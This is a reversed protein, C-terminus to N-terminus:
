GPPAYHVVGMPCLLGGRRNRPLESVSYYRVKKTDFHQTLPILREEVVFIM